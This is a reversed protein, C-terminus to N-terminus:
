HIKPFDSYRTTWCPSLFDRKMQWGDAEAGKALTLSGRGYTEAIKDLSLMFNRKKIDERPSTWLEGQFAEPLIDMLTVMITKYGYGQRFICPLIKRAARVIDPTYSTMRELKIYAGNSYQEEQNQNYYNCTSIYIHVSGCECKQLRLREVALETYQVLACEMVKIDYVKVSFQRSSTIVDKKTRTVKDICSIGNLEQVTAFGQISLLKKADFLNMEKLMLANKIGHQKLLAARAHGIGWITECDTSALLSDAKDKEYVFVGGHEKAKKNYLKALTKSPAAGVCIPMGVEKYIRRKLEHGIQYWDRVSFNCGKFFLFSEDISYEEIDPAYEMYISTIRRSIDAYLTYNSSFVTIGKQRCVERVEFYPDGRKIGCAKAERNLAIIVGDNNSLVAVPKNRLDPRFIQECSAYFSNGDAHLIM